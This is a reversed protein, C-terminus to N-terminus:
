QVIIWRNTVFGSAYTSSLPIFKVGYYTHEQCVYFVSEESCSIENMSTEWNVFQVREMKSPDIFVDPMQEHCYQLDNYESQVAEEISSYTEVHEPEGKSLYYHQYVKYMM